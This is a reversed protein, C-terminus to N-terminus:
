EILILYQCQSHQPNHRHNDLPSVLRVRPQSPPLDVLQSDQPNHQHNALQQQSLGKALRGAVIQKSVDTAVRKLKEGNELDKEIKWAPKSSTSSSAWQQQQKAGKQELQQPKKFVVQEWDQHNQM